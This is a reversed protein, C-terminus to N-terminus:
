RVLKIVDAIQKWSLFGFIAGGILVGIGVGMAIWTLRKVRGQMKHQIEEIRNLREAFGPQKNLPDGIIVNYLSKIQAQMEWFERQEDPSMAMQM